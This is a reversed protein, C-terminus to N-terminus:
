YGNSAYKKLQVQNFAGSAIGSVDCDSPVLAGHGAYAGINPNHLCAEGQECLGNNNGIADDWIEIAPYLYDTVCFSGGDFFSGPFRAACDATSTGTDWMHTKQEYQNPCVLGANRAPSGTKLAYKREYNSANAGWLFIPVGTGFAFSFHPSLDVKGTGGDCNSIGYAANGFMYEFYKGSSVDGGCGPVSPVTLWNLGSDTTYVVQNPYAHFVQAMGTATLNGSGTPSSLSTVPPPPPTCFNGSCIATFGAGSDFDRYLADPTDFVLNNRVTQPDSTGTAEHIGYRISGAETFLINQEIYTEHGSMSYNLFISRANTGIGSKGGGSITNGAIVLASSENYIGYAQSGAGGHLLNGMVVAQSERSYIAHSGMNTVYGGAISNGVIVASSYHDYIGYAFSGNAVSGGGTIANGAIIPQSDNNYIGYSKRMVAGSGPDIGGGSIFNGIIQPSSRNNYIGYSDATYSDTTIANNSIKLTGDCQETFIGYALGNSTNRINFFDLVTERQRIQVASVAMIGQWEISTRTNTRVWSTADFGGYLRAGPLLNIWQQYAANFGARRAVHVKLGLSASDSIAKAFTRYPRDRTGRTDDRGDGDTDEYCNAVYLPCHMYLTQDFADFTAQAYAGETTTNARVRWRYSYGEPLDLELLTTPAQVRFPSGSVLKTSDGFVEASGDDRAVDVMYYLAGSRALWLLRVKQSSVNTLKAGDAPSLIVPPAPDIKGIKGDLLDKRDLQSCRLVGALALLVALSTKFIGIRLSRRAQMLM